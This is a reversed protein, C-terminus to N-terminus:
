ARFRGRLRSASNLVERMTLRHDLPVILACRRVSAPYVAKPFPSIVTIPNITSLRNLFIEWWALVRAASGFRNGILGLDSIVVVPLGPMPPPYSILRPPPGVAVVEPISRFRVIEVQDQGVVHQALEALWARDAAFPSMAEAHDILLQIGLRVTLRRGLPLRRIVEGKAIRRVASAMDLTRAPQMTATSALMIGSAWQRQWPAVYSQVGQAAVGGVWGAANPGPSQEGRLGASAGSTRTVSVRIARDPVRSRALSAQEEGAVQRAVAVPQEKAPEASQGPGASGASTVPRPEIDNVQRATATAADSAAVAARTSSIVPSVLTAEPPRGLGLLAAVQAAHGPDTIQLAHVTRLFDALAGRHSSM